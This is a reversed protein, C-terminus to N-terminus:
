AVGARLCDHIHLLGAVRDEGDLVFLASIKKTNMVHLAESALTGQRVVQPARTAVAGATKEMLGDMNRRLDGDTIIGALRGDEVLGALGFGKATMTLLAESMPTQPGVLPLAEGRHMLGDVPMLQAGLKGGPHFRQFDEREFGRRAMLAVALADGIALTATTSTTPAMGIGCAEPADPLLLAVDAQSALTSEARRTIAILPIGFRRSYTIIDALETTEGSNSIVLCVDRATVMGLDGHSAETAHVFQAPTGTSAFTAAIKNGIHGSKGVGSVIVRGEMGELIELAKLHSDGLGTAMLRLAEAETTLVRAMEALTEDRTMPRPTM